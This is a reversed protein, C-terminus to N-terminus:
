SLFFTFKLINQFNSVAYNIETEMVVPTKVLISIIAGLSAKLFYAGVSETLTVRTQFSVWSYTKVELIKSITLKTSVATKLM